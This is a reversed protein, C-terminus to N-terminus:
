PNYLQQVESLTLGRNFIRVDDILGQYSYLADEQRLRGITLDKTTSKITGDYPTSGIQVGNQYLRVMSGDAVGVLHVWQNGPYSVAPSVDRLTNNSQEIIFSPRNAGSNQGLYLAYSNITGAGTTWKGVVVSNQYTSATNIWASVTIQNTIDLSPSHSARVYSGGSFSLAGLSKGSTWIPNNILTGINNNGSSDGAVTGSGEDFKWYSAFDGSSQTSTTFNFDGSVALNGAADKSRVRYHYSTSANLNSLVQSHSTVLTTDIVTMSGYATTLGYEIQSDAPENTAWTITATTQGPSSNVQSITPPTTDPPLQETYLSQVESLTLGRNFIRVDDILGQYSYLADEQRLRGITLDKITSKITGDYATSGIQVGNQYLRVMSGDAVGVLHVWQNGPYAVAPSVDKLVDNSQEIIFSPRNAGSNQGLYLAYSNNTGAGTTWKGVIVSNQNPAGTYIWASVTIQNTLNLTASHTARVYSGGNFSLAGLSHGSTWTPGSLLTGTNNNGSSDGAVTGSGEDFKWYSAFDGSSQTSTTFNFDGSVALNGAADKSRVRYHYSTSANLNSLVQSHSTVLTTDIVTMSGYATTLGYEIQSDAPENTAWTITATTQSPSSNVQSITPPTTDPPDMQTNKWFYLPVNGFPSAGIIDLDGDNGFDGVKTNHAGTTDVVQSSFVSGSGTNNYILLRNNFCNTSAHQYESTIIDLASDGDINAVAIEHTCAVNEIDHRTWPVGSKPNLPAEFWSLAGVAEPPGLVVDLRGDGNLDGVAVAADIPLGSAFLYEPWTGSGSISGINEYWKGSIIIDQDNDRDIDGLNFGQGGGPVVIITSTWSMPNNQKYIIIDGTSQLWRSIIDIKGDGDLDNLRIDHAMNSGINHRIWSSGSAPNGDPQGTNKLPNELWIPGAIVIDNDGDNDIDATRGDASTLHNDSSLIVTKTWSPYKYWVLPGNLTGVIVDLFTDGDIDAAIKIYPDPGVTDITQRNFNTDALVKDLVFIFSLLIFIFFIQKKM